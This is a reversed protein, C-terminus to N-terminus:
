CRWKKNFHRYWALFTLPWSHRNKDKNWRNQFQKSLTANTTTKMKNITCYIHKNKTSFNSGILVHRFQTCILTWLNMLIMFKSACTKLNCFGLSYTWLYSQKLLGFFDCPYVICQIHILWITLNMLRTKQTKPERKKKKKIDFKM